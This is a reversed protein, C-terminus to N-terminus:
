IHVSFARLNASSIIRKRPDSKAGAKKCHFLFKHIFLKNSSTGLSSYSSSLSSLSLLPLFETSSGLGSRGNMVPVSNSRFAVVGLVEMENRGYFTFARLLSDYSNVTLHWENTYDQHINLATSHTM